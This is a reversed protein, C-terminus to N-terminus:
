ELIDLALTHLIAVWNLWTRLMHWGERPILTCSDIIGKTTVLSETSFSVKNRRLNASKCEDLILDEAAQSSIKLGTV